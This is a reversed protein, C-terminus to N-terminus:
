GKNSGGAVVNNIKNKFLFYFIVTPLTALVTGAMQWENHIVGSGDMDRGVNFLWLPITDISSDVMLISPWMYSNWSAFVTLIVVTWITSSIMPLAIKFFYGTGSVGDIMAAEKVSDPINEFSIRFMYGTFISAVFPACLGVLLLPGSTMGLQVTVDYQGSLLAVEPVALSLMLVWWIINKGKFNFHGFAYGLLICVFLKMVINVCVVMTTFFFSQWFGNNFASIYNGFNPDSPTLPISGSNMEDWSMLSMSVMYYFPFLVIFGFFALVFIKLALIATRAYPNSTSVRRSVKEAAKQAKKDNRRVNAIIQTRTAM